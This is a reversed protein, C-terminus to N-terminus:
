VDRNLCSEESLAKGNGWLRDNACEVITKNSTKEILTHMLHPNQLFKERIGKECLSRAVADWKKGDVNKISWALQKCDFSTKCGM